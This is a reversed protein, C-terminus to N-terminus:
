EMRLMPLYNFLSYVSRKSLPPLLLLINRNRQLWQPEVSSRISSTSSTAKTRRRRKPAPKRRKRRAPSRPPLRASRAARKRDGPPQLRWPSARQNCCVFCCCCCCLIAFFSSRRRESYVGARVTKSNARLFLISILKIALSNHCEEVSHPFCFAHGHLYRCFLWRSHIYFLRPLYFLCKSYKSRYMPPSHLLNRFKEGAPLTATFANERRRKEPRRLLFAVGAIVRRRGDLYFIHAYLPNGGLCRGKYNPARGKYALCFRRRSSEGKPSRKAASSEEADM